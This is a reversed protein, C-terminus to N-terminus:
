YSVMIKRMINMIWVRVKWPIKIMLSFIIIQMESKFRNADVIVARKTTDLPIDHKLCYSAAESFIKGKEVVNMKSFMSKMTCYYGDMYSSRYSGMIEFNWPNEGPILLKKLAAVDWFGMAITRYPQGKTYEGFRGNDIIKDPVPTPGIHVHRAKKSKMFELVETFRAVSVKKIPFMDDLWLFIYPTSVQELIKLLSTSWDKDPGSCLSVIQKNKYPITNSGLYM